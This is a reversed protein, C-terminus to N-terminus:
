LRPSGPVPRPRGPSPQDPATPEELTRPAAPAPQAMYPTPVPPRESPTSASRLNAAVEDRLSTVLDRASQLEEADALSECAVYLGGAIRRRERAVELAQGVQRTHRLYTVVGAAIRYLTTVPTLDLWGTLGGAALEDREDTLLMIDQALGYDDDLGSATLGGLGHEAAFRDRQAELEVTRAHQAQPDKLWAADHGGAHAARDLERERFEVAAMAHDLEDVLRYAERAYHLAEVAAHLVHRVEFAPLQLVRSVAALDLPAQTAAASFRVRGGDVAIDVVSEEKAWRLAIGISAAGPGAPGWLEIDDRPAILDWRADFANVAEEFPTGITDAAEVTGPPTTRPTDM